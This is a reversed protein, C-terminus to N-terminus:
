KLSDCKHVGLLGLLRLSCFCVLPRREPACQLSAQPRVTSGEGCAFQASPVAVCLSCVTQSLSQICYLSYATHECRARWASAVRARVLLLASTM